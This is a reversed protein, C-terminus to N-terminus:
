RTGSRGPSLDPLLIGAASSRRGADADDGHRLLLLAHPGAVDSCRAQRLLDGAGPSGPLCRGGAPLRGARRRCRGASRRGERLRGSRADGGRRAGLAGGGRRGAEHFRFLDQADLVDGRDTAERFQFAGAQLLANVYADSPAM